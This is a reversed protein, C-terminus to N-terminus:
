FFFFFFNSVKLSSEAKSSFYIYLLNLKNYIIYIYFLAKQSTTYVQGQLKISPKLFVLFIKKLEELEVWDSNSLFLRKYELNSTIKSIYILPEKLELLTNLM